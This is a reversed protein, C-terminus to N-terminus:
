REGIIINKFEWDTGRNGKIGSSIKKKMGVFDFKIKDPNYDVGPVDLWTIDWHEDEFYNRAHNLQDSTIYKVNPYRERVILYFLQAYGACVLEKDEIARRLQYWVLYTLGPYDSYSWTPQMHRFSHDYEFYNMLILGVDEPEFKAFQHCWALVFDIDRKLAPLPARSPDQLWSEWEQKNKTIAVEGGYPLSYMLEGNIRRPKPTPVVWTKADTEDDGETPLINMPDFKENDETYDNCGIILFSLFVAGIIGLIKNM